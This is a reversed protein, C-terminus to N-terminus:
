YKRLLKIIKCTGTFKGIWLKQNWFIKLTNIRWDVDLCTNLKQSNRENLKNNSNRPNFPPKNYVKEQRKLANTPQTHVDM